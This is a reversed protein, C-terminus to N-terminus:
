VHRFQGRRGNDLQKGPIRELDDTVVQGQGNHWHDIRRSFRRIMVAFNIDLRGDFLDIPLGLKVFTCSSYDTYDPDTQNDHGLLEEPRKDKRKELIEKEEAPRSIVRIWCGERFNTEFDRSM